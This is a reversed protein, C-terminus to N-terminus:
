PSLWVYGSSIQKQVDPVGKFNNSKTKRTVSWNMWMNCNSMQTAWLRGSYIKSEFRKM